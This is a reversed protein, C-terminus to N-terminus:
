SSSIWHGCYYQLGFTFPDQMVIMRFQDSWHRVYSDLNFDDHHDWQLSHSDRWVRTVDTRERDVQVIHSRQKRVHAVTGSRTVRVHRWHNRSRNLQEGSGPPCGQHHASRELPRDVPQNAVLPRIRGCTLSSDVARASRIVRGNRNSQESRPQVWRPGVLIMTRYQRRRTSTRRRFFTLYGLQLSRTDWRLCDSTNKVPFHPITLKQYRM